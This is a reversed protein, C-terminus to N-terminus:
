RVLAVGEVGGHAHDLATHHVGGQPDGDEAVMCPFVHRRAARCAPRLDPQVPLAGLGQLELANQHLM